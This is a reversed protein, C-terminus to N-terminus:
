WDMKRLRRLAEEIRDLEVTMAFRVYGEGAKGFGVGPIAVVAAEDLIREATQMSDLGSPVGAWVYFTARPDRVRFGLEALGATMLQARRHYMDRLDRIEPRDYGEYAAVGAAQIAGFQSSDMNAKIRALADLVDPHGAAFGLRWGTMSFSKSASHLEIAVDFAGAVQLISPAPEGFCVENYAADQVVVIDHERAFAVLDRYFALPAVAGIPNNPYNVYILVARRALDSPIASLDPLWDRDERLTFTTPVGGAFLTGSHYVPYGPDPVLTVDGPNVLALPLHGLGEKTGILAIIHAEPDLTVGYRRAFFAAAARRFEPNGRDHAYRHYAPNRAADILRDIIFDPTPRDPDGVGFSIVDKGAAVAAARKREIAVFLYPPLARIRETPALNM